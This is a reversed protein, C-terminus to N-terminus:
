LRRCEVLSIRNILMVIERCDTHQILLMTNPLSVLLERMLGATLAVLHIVYYEQPLTESVSNYLQLRWPLRYLIVSMRNFKPCASQM